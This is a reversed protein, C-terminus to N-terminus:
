LVKNKLFWALTILGNRYYHNGPLCSPSPGNKVWRAWNMRFQTRDSSVFLNVLRGGELESAFAAGNRNSLNSCELERSFKRTLATCAM